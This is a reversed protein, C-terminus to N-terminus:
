SGMGGVLKMKAGSSIELVEAINPIAIILFSM